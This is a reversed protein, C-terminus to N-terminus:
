EGEILRGFPTFSENFDEVDSPADPEAAELLPGLATEGVALAAAAEDITVSGDELGARLRGMALLAAPTVDRTLVYLEQWDNM